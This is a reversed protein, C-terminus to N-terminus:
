KIEESRINMAAMLSYTLIEQGCRFGSVAQPAFLMIQQRNTAESLAHRVQQGYADLDAVLMLQTNEENHLLALLSQEYLDGLSVMDSEVKCSAFCYEAINTKIATGNLETDLNDPLCNKLVQKGPTYLLVVQVQETNGPRLGSDLAIYDVWRSLDLKDIRRELMREFNVTLDFAMRDLYDADILLQIM